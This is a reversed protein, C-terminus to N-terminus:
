ENVLNRLIFCIEDDGLDVKYYDEIPHISSKIAEFIKRHRRKLDEKSYCTPTLKGDIINSISCVIHVLLGVRLDYNLPKSTAAELGHIFEEYLKEFKFLNINGMDRQLVELFSAYEMEEVLNGKSVGKGLLEKLRTCEIDVFIEYTTIFPIGYIKPDIPGVIAIINKDKSLSNILNYLYKKNNLSMPLIDANYSKLNIKSEIFNKLEIASGEGTSCLTIIVNEESPLFTDTVKVNYSAYTALSANLDSYIKDIDSEIVARRSCEIAIPTSVLTFVKVEISLEKAILEGFTGLSGMDVLLMVGAGQHKKHILEKLEQYALEPSKDLNMDYSYVNNAGVLKNVVEGMSSATSRGHMAIVVIPKDEFEQSELEDVTLFMTIFGIEDEPVKVFFDREIIRALEIALEYEEPFNSRINKLNHNVIEKGSKLREITSNVHLALGYFVKVPFIKNLRKGGMRLFNELMTIIDESVVKSLEYKTAGKEFNRIFNKFYNEIDLEMLLKIEEDGVGRKHLEATRKEIGEYFNQPLSYDGEKLRSRQGKPTFCIEINDKLLKDVEQAYNKYIILGQNVHSAFDTCHIEIKNGQLSLSNLFGNACGLQIDSKLQGVNGPCEYLLLQRMTNLSVQIDKGIRAAETTFFECILEYREELTRDKLPPIKINMPIRRTFTNLLVNDIDETTACIILVECHKKEEDGLPCYKGKDILYFLMEQGEPPLRHVEDLFLVGGNAKGVVGEKDKHAGTYAGKKTGFLQALLLQPNNAYDACNFAVFPADLPFIGNEVAFKYMLEAFMTKGVGSPGLILTHLGRKPYMIAAKAQQISKKLSKDCGTLADFNTGEKHETIATGGTSNLAYIVPKGKIKLLIGQRYLDNLISSANSRQMGMAEAIDMASFGKRDDYNNKIYDLILDRSSKM